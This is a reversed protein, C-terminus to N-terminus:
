GPFSVFVNAPAACPCLCVSCLASSVSTSVIHPKSKDTLLAGSSFKHGLLLKLSLVECTSWGFSPLHVALERNSALSRSPSEIHIHCSRNLTESLDVNNSTVCLYVLSGQRVQVATHICISHRALNVVWQRQKCGRMSSCAIHM